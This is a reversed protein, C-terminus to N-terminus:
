SPGVTAPTFDAESGFLDQLSTAELSEQLACQGRTTKQQFQSLAFLGADLAFPGADALM